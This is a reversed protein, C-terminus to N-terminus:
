KKGALELSGYVQDFRKKEAPTMRKGVVVVQPPSADGTKRPALTSEVTKAKAQDPKNGTSSTRAAADPPASQSEGAFALTAIALGAIVLAARVLLQQQLVPHLSSRLANFQPTILSASM